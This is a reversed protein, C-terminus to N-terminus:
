LSIDEFEWYNIIFQATRIGQWENISTKGIAVVQQPKTPIQFNPTKFKILKLEPLNVQITNLDKGVIRFYQPLVIFNLKFIPEPLVSCFSYKIDDLEEAIAPVEALGLTAAIEYNAEYEPANAAIYNVLQPLKPTEISFGAANDHGAVYDMLNSELLFKALNTIPGNSINRISGSWRAGNDYERGVLVPKNYLSALNNALLGTMPQPVRPPPTVLLVKAQDKGQEVLSQHIQPVVADIIRKQRSKISTATKVAEAFLQRDGAWDIFAQFILEKEALTGLRILANILPAIYFSVEIPGAMADPFTFENTQIYYKMFPNTLNLLGKQIIVRSDYNYATMMDAVMGMAALDYFKNGFPTNLDESVAQLFKFVTSAGSLEQNPFNKDLHPNVVPHHDTNDANHHDIVIAAMQKTDLYHHLDPDISADPVIVLKTQPFAQLAEISLGHQKLDWFGYNIEITPAMMRIWQYFIAASTYGDMDSDVQIYIPHLNNIANLLVEKAWTYNPLDRGSVEYTSSPNQWTKFDKIGCSKAYETFNWKQLRQKIKM